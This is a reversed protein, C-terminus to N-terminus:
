LELVQFVFKCYFDCLSLTKFRFDKEARKVHKEQQSQQQRKGVRELTQFYNKKEKMPELCIYYTMKNKDTQYSFLNPEIFM